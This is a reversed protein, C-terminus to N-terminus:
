AGVAVEMTMSVLTIPLPNSQRVFVQGADNWTPTIVLQIEKSVLAPPAGYNETTRQKAETLHTEDPGAFVGGSNNVRLWVKNVNKARGQGLASDLQAAWPLTKVDATIPLGIQVKAAAYDLTVSGSTVTVQRHVAGDTLVSVKKGELWTLGGISTVVQSWTGSTAGANAVTLNFTNTTVGSITYATGSPYGGFSTDSFVFKLSMGNTFPHNALTCTMTTGSRTFTGGYFYSYGCDVYFADAQTTFQRSAMREVYRVSSGNVTRKVIVYLVDENGEAVVCCSEFTGDTDHRAWSGVQQEPVYTLSLLNGNSSVAWVNPIPAKGYAMDVITLNDFLHPARLSLDGTIYGNAQWSYALERMHGGRAASYILNNNIIVPQVNSAGIYSQPRVSVTSPTIADSNLSTVRWEASSTLLVLNTLPVIHRITNAERAAVRFSIADDDRTPLSYSLNSETGSRTMWLNQPLNITGAFCRRQEFYSVAGPYNSSGSFPNNSIPVTVGMNATINDDKFSLQDTQGIYGYLGQSFKYVKYRQAGSVSSWTVTNYAGTTLLNGSCSASSSALSEDIGTSGVATVVYQYTTGTGGTAAAAVGTPAALSSVFSIDTLTWNYAGLRKLEKPPYNPHTLTLVDASQVYHIDFLDAEAYTNTIEYPVGASLLTAGQTHFRFYGAGLEIVMTQTTSYNFPILRTKKTSDKVARVYATGPRNTVPGHPLPIFNRCTALGSQYKADSIEGYFEPTLEGGNFSRQLTRVNAM